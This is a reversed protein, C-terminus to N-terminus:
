GPSEGMEGPREWMEGPREWMEGPREWMEGPREGDVGTKGVDGGTKGRDGGTKGVSSVELHALAAQSAELRRQTDFQLDPPIWTARMHDLEARLEEVLKDTVVGMSEGSMDGDSGSRDLIQQRQQQLIKRLVDMDTEMARREEQAKSWAERWREGEGELEVVRGRLRESQQRAKGAECECAELRSVKDRLTSLDQYLSSNEEKLSQCCQKMTEATQAVGRLSEVDRELECDQMAGLQNLRDQVARLRQVQEELEGIRVDKRHLQSNSEQLDLELEDRLHQGTRLDQQCRRLSEERERVQRELKSRYEKERQMIKRALQPSNVLEELPTFPLDSDVARQPSTIQGSDNLGSLSLSSIRLRLPSDLMESLLDPRASATASIVASSTSSSSSSTPTNESVLRSFFSARDSPGPDSRQLLVTPFDPPLSTTPEDPRVVAEILQRVDWHLAADVRMAAALIAPNKVQIGACLLLLLGKAIEEKKEANPAAESLVNFDVLGGDPFSTNYFDELFKKTALVRDKTNPHDELSTSSDMYMIVTLFCTGYDLHTLSAAGDDSDLLCGLWGLLAKEKADDM